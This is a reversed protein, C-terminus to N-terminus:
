KKTKPKRIYDPRVEHPNYWNNLAEVIAPEELLLYKQWLDERILTYEYDIKRILGDSDEPLEGNSKLVNRIRKENAGYALRWLKEVPM